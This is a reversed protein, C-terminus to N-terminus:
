VRGRKGRAGRSRSRLEGAHNEGAGCCRGGLSSAGFAVGLSGNSARMRQRERGSQRQRRQTVAAMAIGPARRAVILLRCCTTLQRM